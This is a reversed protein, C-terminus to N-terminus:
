WGMDNIEIRGLINLVIFYNLKLFYKLVGVVNTENCYVM